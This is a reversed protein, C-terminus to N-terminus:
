NLKQMNTNVERDESILFYIQSMMGTLSSTSGVYPRHERKALKWLDDDGSSRIFGTVRDFAFDKM